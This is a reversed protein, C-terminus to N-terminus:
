TGRRWPHDPRLHNPKSSITKRAPGPEKVPRQPVSRWTLTVQKYTMHITSDARLALQIIRGALALSGHRKEIQLICGDIQVCWDKGVVRYERRCLIDALRVERVVIRHLDVPSLPRVGTTRYLSRLFIKELYRNARTIDTIRETALEKVLRDQLTRNMREVRGKAQPSGAFIMGVGLEEMARGFQTLPAKQVREVRRQRLDEDKVRYISDRDVYLERPLGYRRVYSGFLDFASAMDESAYFRAWVRSSADDIMVFLVCASYARGFWHHTSGDMQVLSGVQQRRVRRIRHASVWRHTVARGDAKMWRWASIRSAVLGCEALKGVTHAPGYNPCEVLSRSLFTKRLAEKSANSKKGRLGHVLGVDGHQKYRQWMRRAQRESVELFRGAEVVSLAGQKVRSFIELRHRERRNTVLKEM